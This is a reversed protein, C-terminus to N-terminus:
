FWWYTFNVVFRLRDPPQTGNLDQYVRFLPGGSIGWAGFLGLVTPGVFLQHGGSNPLEAGALVDHATVEGVAEVFLRWDSHPLEQRFVEPRYGLVASYFLLDGQHDAGQGRPSMYRRYLAGIWAYISRSAYGTVGGAVFGPSTRMGGRVSDTPYDLGLLATSEFRSGVNAGVRHFRWALLAEIDPTAPMMGMMRVPLGKTPTYLPLPVSLSLQVDEILGYGVMPRLMASQAQPDDFPGRARYM